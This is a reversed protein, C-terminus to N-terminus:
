FAESMSALSELQQTWCDIVIKDKSHLKGRLRAYFGRLGVLVTDNSAEAADHSVTGLTTAATSVTGDDSYFCHDEVSSQAVDTGWVTALVPDTSTLGDHISLVFDDACSCLAVM